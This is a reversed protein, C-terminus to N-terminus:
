NMPNKKEREALNLHTPLPFVLVPRGCQRLSCTVCSLVCVGLVCFALSLMSWIDFKRSLAQDHGMAALDSADQAHQDGSHFPKLTEPNEVDM